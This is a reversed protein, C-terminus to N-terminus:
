PRLTRCTTQEDSLGAHRLRAPSITTPCRPVTELTQHQRPRPSAPAANRSRRITKSLLLVRVIRATCSWLVRSSRTPPSAVNQSRHRWGIDITRTSVVTAFSPIWERLSYWHLPQAVVATTRVSRWMSRRTSGSRNSSPMVASSGPTLADPRRSLQRVSPRGMEKRGPMRIATNVCCFSFPGAAAPGTTLLFARGFICIVTM